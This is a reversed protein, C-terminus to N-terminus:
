VFVSEQNHSTWVVSAGLCEQLDRLSGTEDPEVFECGDVSDDGIGQIQRLKVLKRGDVTKLTKADASITGFLQQVQSLVL